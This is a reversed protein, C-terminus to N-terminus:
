AQKSQWPIRLRSPTGRLVPAAVVEIPLSDQTLTLTWPEMIVVASGDGGDSCRVSRCDISAGASSSSKM